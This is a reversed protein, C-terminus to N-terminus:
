QLPSSLWIIIAQWKGNMSTNNTRLFYKFFITRDPYFAQCIQDVKQRDDRLRLVLINWNKNKFVTDGLALLLKCEVRNKVPYVSGHIAFKWPELKCIM